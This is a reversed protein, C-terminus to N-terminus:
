PSIQRPKLAAEVNKWFQHAEADGEALAQAALEAAHLHARQGHSAVLEHAKRSVQIWDDSEPV